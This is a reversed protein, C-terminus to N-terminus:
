RGRPKRGREHDVTADWAETYSNYPGGDDGCSCAWWFYRRGQEPSLITMEHTATSDAM